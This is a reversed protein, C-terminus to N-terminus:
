TQKAKHPGFAVLAAGHVVADCGRLADEVAAQDTVDGIRTEVADGNVGVLELVVRLNDSSRVLARVTHGADLLAAVTHCGLFGSAGTVLVRMSDSGVPADHRPRRPRGVAGRYAWRRVPVHVRRGD